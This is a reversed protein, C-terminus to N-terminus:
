TESQLSTKNEQLNQSSQPPSTSTQHTIAAEVNKQDCLNLLKLSSGILSSQATEKFGDQENVTPESVVFFLQEWAQMTIQEFGTENERQWDNPVLRNDSLLDQSFDPIHSSPPSLSLFPSSSLSFQSISQNKVTIKIQRIQHGSTSEAQQFSTHSSSQSKFHRGTM